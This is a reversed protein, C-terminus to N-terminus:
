YFFLEDEDSSSDLAHQIDDIDEDNLTGAIANGFQQAYHNRYWHLLHFKAM